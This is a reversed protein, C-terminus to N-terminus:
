ICFTCVQGCLTSTAGALGAMVSYGTVNALSTALSAAALPGPGLHSGALLILCWM